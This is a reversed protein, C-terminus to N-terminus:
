EPVKRIIEFGIVTPYQGNSLWVDNQGCTIVETGLAAPVIRGNPNVLPNVLNNPDTAQSISSSIVYANAAPSFRIEERLPDYGAVQIAPNTATLVVTRYSARIEYKKPQPHNIVRVDVPEVSVQTM